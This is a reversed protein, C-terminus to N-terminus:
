NDLNLRFICLSFSVASLSVWLQTNLYGETFSRFEKLFLFKVIKSFSKNTKPYDTGLLIKLYKGKPLIIRSVHQPFPDHLEAKM